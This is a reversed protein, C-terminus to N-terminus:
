EGVFKATRVEATARRVYAIFKEVHAPDNTQFAQEVPLTLLGGPGWHFATALAEGYDRWAEIAQQKLEDSIM